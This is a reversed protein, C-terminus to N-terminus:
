VFIYKGIFDIAKEEKISCFDDEIKDFGVLVVNGVLKHIIGNIRLKCTYPLGDLKGEENVIVIVEDKYFTVTEMYGGIIKSIEDASNKDNIEKWKTKGEPTLVCVKM